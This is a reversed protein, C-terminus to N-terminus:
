TTPSRISTRRPSQFSSPTRATWTSAWSPSGGTAMIFAPTSSSASATTSPAPATPASLAYSPCPPYARAPAVWLDLHNLSAARLHVLVEGEQLTPDSLRRNTATRGARLGDDISPSGKGPASRLPSKTLPRGTQERPHCCFDRHPPSARPCTAPTLVISSSRSASSSPSSTTPAAGAPGYSSNWLPQHALAARTPEEGVHLEGHGLRLHGAM